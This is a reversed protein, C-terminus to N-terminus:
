LVYCWDGMATIYLWNSRRYQCGGFIDVSCTRSVLLYCLLCGTTRAQRNCMSLLYKPPIGICVNLDVTCWRSPLSTCLLFIIIVSKLMVFTIYPPDNKGFINRRKHKGGPTLGSWMSSHRRWRNLNTENEFYKNQQVDSILCINCMAKNSSIFLCPQHM